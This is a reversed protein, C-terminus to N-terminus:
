VAATHADVAEARRLRELLGPLFYDFVEGRIQYHYFRGDKRVSILGAERLIKVHYSITSKSIPFEQELTTCALEDDAAIMSVMRVRLDSSLASFIEAYQEPESRDLPSAM